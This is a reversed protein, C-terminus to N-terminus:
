TANKVAPATLEFERPEGPLKGVIAIAGIVSFLAPGIPKVNLQCTLVSAPAVQCLKWLKVGITVPPIPVGAGADPDFAKPPVLAPNKAPNVISSWSPEPLKKAVDPTLMPLFEPIVNRTYACPM